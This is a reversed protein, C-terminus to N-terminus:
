VGVADVTDPVRLPHEHVGLSQRGLDSEVQELGGRHLLGGHPVVDAADVVPHIPRM